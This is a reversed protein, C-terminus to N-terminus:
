MKESESAERKEQVFSKVANINIISQAMKGAAEEGKKYRKKRFPYIMKNVYVTIFLFLTNYSCM